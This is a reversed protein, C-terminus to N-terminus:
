FTWDTTLLIANQKSKYMNKPDVNFGPIFLSHSIFLLLM